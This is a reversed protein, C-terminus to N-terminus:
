TLMKLKITVIPMPIQFTYFLNMDIVHIKKYHVINNGLM